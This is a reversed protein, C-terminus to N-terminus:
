LLVCAKSKTNATKAEEEDEVHMMWYTIAQTLEIKSICGDGLIDANELVWAVEEDSVPLGENLDSLLKRLQEKDLKGSQDTDYKQFTEDIMPGSDRYTSWVKMAGALEDREVAGTKKVDAMRLVFTVEDDTVPKSSYDQLLTKLEAADLKGNKKKDYQAFVKLIRESEMEAADHAAQRSKAAQRRKQKVAAHRAGAFM